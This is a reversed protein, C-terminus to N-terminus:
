KILERLATTKKVNVEDHEPTVYPIGNCTGEKEDVHVKEVTFYNGIKVKEQPNLRNSLAEIMADVEKLFGEAEKKSGLALVDKLITLLEDKKLSTMKKKM